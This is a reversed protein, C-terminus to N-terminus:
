DVLRLNPIADLSLDFFIDDGSKREAHRKESIFKKYGAMAIMAANDTCYKPSPFCVKLGNKKAKETLVNRLMSNASVGGAISITKVGTEKAAKILKTSLSDVVADLFSAAVNNINEKLYVPDNNELFVKVATKLGSFSFDFSSRMARPFKHFDINGKAAMEDIIKGGPFGLGMMKSVKDLCEGAADDRTKGILKYSYYNEVHILETHGGSVVLVVFPPALDPHDIFNAYIHGEIHNVPILPIKRSYAIAKATNVGVLLPGILGPGYTVAVAEIDDLTTNAEELATDIVTLINRQHARSAVEPIIGGFKIHEMQTSVKSSLVKGDELVAASTDDCSTEIGLIKM